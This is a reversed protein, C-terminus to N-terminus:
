CEPPTPHATFLPVREVHRPYLIPEHFLDENGRRGRADRGEDVRRAPVRNQPPVSAAAGLSGASCAGTQKSNARPREDSEATPSHPYNVMGNPDVHSKPNPRLSTSVFVRSYKWGNLLTEDTGTCLYLARSQLLARAARV